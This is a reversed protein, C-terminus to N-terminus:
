AIQLNMEMNVLVWWEYM